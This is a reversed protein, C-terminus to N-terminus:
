NRQINDKTYTNFKYKTSDTHEILLGNFPIDNRTHWNISDAKGLFINQKLSRISIGTTGNDEVSLVMGETGKKTDLGLNVRTIGDVNLIGYGSREYGNEDNLIIGSAPAIRKGINPDPTNSGIAIRDYGNEDLIVIGNASHDYKKYFNMYDPHIYGWADKARLTDTRVRNKADPIPAGILIRENGKDDVIVIGKTRIIENNQYSTKTFVLMFLILISVTTFISYIKLFKGSSLSANGM